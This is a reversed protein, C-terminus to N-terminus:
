SCLMLAVAMRNAPTAIGYQEGLRVIVGNRAEVETQRGALRDALLSNISDQPGSRYGALVQEGLGDELKAGAARGVAVCEAILALAVKGLADDQLVGAPKRTLASLVGASNLCLKRWVATRFDGTLELQAASVTFLGAFAHGEPSDEVRMVAPGRQLVEGEGRREAPTDIVVPLVAFEPAFRERHEVGNQIVAIRTEPGALHDLWLKAAPTDYTKTAVLVWDSPTGRAPDTLNEALVEVVGEPTEVKLQPLPRRTCLILEHGARSLQGALVSGIAGVGVIAVKSMFGRQQARESTVQYATISPMVFTPSARLRTALLTLM